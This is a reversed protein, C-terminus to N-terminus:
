PQLNVQLTVVLNHDPLYVTRSVAGYFPCVVNVTRPAAGYFLCDMLLWPRSVCQSFFMLLMFFCGSNFLSSVSHSLGSFFQRPVVILSIVTFDKYRCFAFLSSFLLVFSIIRSEYLPFDCYSFVTHFFLWQLSFPFLKGRRFVPASGFSTHVHRARATSHRSVRSSRQQCRM